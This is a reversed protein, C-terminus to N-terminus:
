LNPEMEELASYIPGDIYQIAGFQTGRDPICLTQYITVQHDQTCSAASSTTRGPSIHTMICSCYHNLIVKYIIERVQPCALSLTHTETITRVGQSSCEMRHQRFIDFTSIIMTSENLEVMFSIFTITPALGLEIRVGDTHTHTHIDYM